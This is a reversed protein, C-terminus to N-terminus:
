GHSQASSIHLKTTFLLLTRNVLESSGRRNHGVLPLAPDWCSKVKGRGEVPLCTARCLSSPWGLADCTCHASCTPVRGRKQWLGEALRGLSGSPWTVVVGNWLKCEVKRNVSATAGSLVRTMATVRACHSRKRQVQLPDHVLM